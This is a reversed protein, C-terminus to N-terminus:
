RHRGDKEHVLEAVVAYAVAEIVTRWAGSPAEGELERFHDRARGVIRDMVESPVPDM